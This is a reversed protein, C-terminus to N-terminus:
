KYKYETPHRRTHLSAYISCKWHITFDIQTKNSDCNYTPTSANISIPLYNFNFVQNINKVCLTADSVSLFQYVGNNFFYDFSNNSTNIQMPTGNQTYQITWPANGHLDFHLMTKNSDCNYTPTSLAIDIIDYNFTYLQNLNTACGTADTLTTFEYDGNTFLEIPNTSNTTLNLPVLNKTYALSFPANGQFAFDIQTKNSDCKYSPISASVTIPSYNFNYVQNINKLCMTADSISLFQYIGNGLYYDFSSDLTLIQLPTGNQTYQITWPANGELDFHILTKNSDCNFVPTSLSIDITDFNFTHTQNLDSTCGTADILTTFDYNGNTFFSTLNNFSTNINLPTLDKTYALSFPANGQLSFNIQTKNSDCRYIPTSASIAIPSYNFSYVQNINKVCSTSDSISIFQYLGNNLFLDISNSHAVLQVVAGNQTYNLLWPSNGTLDVHIKTKQSDCDYIPASLTYSLSQFNITDTFNSILTCGNQDVISDYIYIENPTNIKFITDISTQTLNQSQTHYFLNFNPTGTVSFEVQASDNLCNYIKTISKITMSPDKKFEITKSKFGKVGNQDFLSDIYYSGEQFLTLSFTDTMVNYTGVLANDRYLNFFYPAVGVFYAQLSASDSKCSNIFALSAKPMKKIRTYFTDLAECPFRHTSFNYFYSLNGLTDPTNFFNQTTHLSNETSMHQVPDSSGYSFLYQTSSNALTKRISDIPHSTFLGDFHLQNSTYIYTLDNFNISYGSAIQAGDPESQLATFFAGWSGASLGIVIVKKYKSKLHKTLANIQIYCNSAWNKGNLNTKSTLADYNMKKRSNPLVSTWISAFDDNPRCFTYVDGYNRSFSAITCVSNHYDTPNYIAVGTGENIGSGPIILIATSTDSLANNKFYFVQSTDNYLKYKLSHALYYNSTGAWGIYGTFDVDPHPTINLPLINKFSNTFSSTTHPYLKNLLNAEDQSSKIENFLQFQTDVGSYYFNIGDTYDNLDLQALSALPYFICFFIFHIFRKM